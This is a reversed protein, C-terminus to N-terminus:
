HDINFYIDINMSIPPSVMNSWKQMHIDINMGLPHYWKTCTRKKPPPYPLRFPKLYGLFWGTSHFPISSDEIAWTNKNLKLKTECGQSRPWQGHGHHDISPVTRWISYMKRAPTENQKVWFWDFLMPNKLKNSYSWGHDIGSTENYIYGPLINWADM